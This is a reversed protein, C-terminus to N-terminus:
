TAEWATAVADPRDFTEAERSWTAEVWIDAPVSPWGAPRAASVVVDRFGRELMKPALQDRVLSTPVIWPVVICARYRKGLELRVRTATVLRWGAVSSAGGPRKYEYFALGVFALWAGAGLALSVKANM